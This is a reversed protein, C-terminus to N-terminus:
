NLCPSCSHSRIQSGFLLRSLDPQSVGNEKPASDALYYVIDRRYGYEQEFEIVRAACSFMAQNANNRPIVGPNGTEKIRCHEAAADWDQRLCTERFRPWLKPFGAGLAWAMSLLGMQADAPWQKFEPFLKKLYAENSLLKESVLMRIVDDSLRLKTLNRFANAGKSALDARFKVLQWEARIEDPTAYIGPQDAYEFPLDLAVPISDILNGVGITVLGKIDLYMWHLVGEIPANFDYFRDYVNQHM